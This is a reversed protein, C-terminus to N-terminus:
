LVLPPAHGRRSGPDTVATILVGYASKRGSATWLPHASILSADLIGGLHSRSCDMPPFKHIHSSELTFTEVKKVQVCSIMLSNRNKGRTQLKNLKM